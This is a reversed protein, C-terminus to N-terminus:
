LTYLNELKEITCGVGEITGSDDVVRDRYPIWYTSTVSFRFTPLLRKRICGPSEVAGGDAEVRTIYDRTFPDLGFFSVGHLNTTLQEHTLIVLKM